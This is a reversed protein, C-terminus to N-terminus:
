SDKRHSSLFKVALIGTVHALVVGTADAFLDIWDGSRRGGTCNAQLFEILGGMLIPAIFTWLFVNMKKAKKNAKLYETLMICCLGFFMVIHTWKDILSVHSLPTEPVNMFCLTWIVIITLTTFPYNRLLQFTKSMKVKM